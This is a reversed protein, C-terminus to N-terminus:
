RGDLCAALEPDSHWMGPEGYGRTVIRDVLLESVFRRPRRGRRDTCDGRIIGTFITESIGVQIAVEKATRGVLLPAILRQAISIPIPQGLRPDWGM